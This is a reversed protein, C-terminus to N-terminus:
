SGPVDAGVTSDRTGYRGVHDTVFGAGSNTHPREHASTPEPDFNALLRLSRFFLAPLGLPFGGHTSLRVGRSAGRWSSIDDILV